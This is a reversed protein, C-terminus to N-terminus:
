FKFNVTLRAVPRFGNPAADKKNQGFIDFGVHSNLRYNIFGGYAFASAVNLPINTVQTTSEGPGVSVGGNAMAFLTFRRYSVIKQAFGIQSTIKLGNGYILDKFTYGKEATVDWDAILLRSGDEAIPFAIGGFGFVSPSATSDWGSGVFLTKNKLQDQAIICSNILLIFLVFLVLKRM